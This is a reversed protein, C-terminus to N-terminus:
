ASAEQRVPVFRAATEDWLRQALEKRDAAVVPEAAISVRAVIRPLAMLRAVHRPFNGHDYWCVTAAPADATGPTDYTLAAAYCPVGLRAAPELLPPQFPLVSAGRSAKGEPFLTVPIGAELRAAMERGVRVVDKARERDVFLTGSWRAIWGFLPWSAIERKAVFISPCISALVWIDVYSTHNATLLFRGTPAEGEVVVRIGLIRCM